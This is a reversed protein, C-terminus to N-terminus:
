YPICQMTHFLTSHFWLMKKCAWSHSSTGHVNYWTYLSYWIIKNRFLLLFPTELDRKFWSLWVSSHRHTSTVNVAAPDTHVTFSCFTGSVALMRRKARLYLCPFSPRTSQATLVALRACILLFGKSWNTMRKRELKREGGKESM